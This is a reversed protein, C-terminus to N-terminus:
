AHSLVEQRAWEYVAIDAGNAARLAELEHLTPEYRDIAPKHRRQKAGLQNAHGFPLSAGLLDTMEDVFIDLHELVGFSYREELMAM